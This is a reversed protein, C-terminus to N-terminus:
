QSGGAPQTDNRASLVGALSVKRAGAVKLKDVLTVLAQAPVTAAADVVYTADRAASAFLGKSLASWHMALGDITLQGTSDALYVRRIVNEKSPAAKAFSADIGGWRIFSSSLMFFLLLIFVVDILPTLSIARRKGVVLKNLQM